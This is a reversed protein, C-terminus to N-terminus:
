RAEGFAAGPHVPRLAHGEHGRGARGEPVDAVGDDKLPPRGVRVPMARPRGNEGETQLSTGRDFPRSAPMQRPEDPGGALEHDHRWPLVVQDAHIPRDLHQVNDKVHIM